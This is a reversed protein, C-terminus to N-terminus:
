AKSGGPTASAPREEALLTKWAEFAEAPSNARRTADERTKEILDDIYQAYAQGYGDRNLPWWARIGPWALVMSCLSHEYGRFADEDLVGQRYQYYQNEFDLFLSRCTM